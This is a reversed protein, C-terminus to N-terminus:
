KILSLKQVVVNGLNEVRLFYIGSALNIGNFTETYTGAKRFGSYLDKVKRGTVDFVKVSIEGDKPISYQINTSPNFPNPYAEVSFKEPITNINGIGTVTTDPPWLAVKNKIAVWYQNTAYNSVCDEQYTWYFNGIVYPLAPAFNMSYFNNITTIKNQGNNDATWGCEGMGLMSNPFKTHLTNFISQWNPSNSGECPDYYYSILVYDLKNVVQPYRALFTNVWQMMVHSTDTTCNLVNYFLTLATRKNISKAYVAVDYVTRQVEAANGNLLWEGNVENGIEWFDVNAALSTNNLFAQSRAVINDHNFGPMNGPDWYWSDLIQGMVYSVTKLSTIAQTFQTPNPVTPNQDSPYFVVRVTPKRPLANLSNKINTMTASSTSNDVNDLTVGCIRNTQSFTFIPFFMLILALYIKAKFNLDQM